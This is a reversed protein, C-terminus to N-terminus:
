SADELAQEARKKAREIKDTTGSERSASWQFRSMENPKSVNRITATTTPIMERREWGEPTEIWRPRRGESGRLDAVLARVAEVAGGSRYEPPLEDRLRELFDAYEKGSDEHIKTTDSDAAQAETIAHIAADVIDEAGKEGLVFDPIAAALRVLAAGREDAARVVRRAADLASEDKRANLNAGIAKRDAILRDCEAIVAEVKYAIYRNLTEPSLESPPPGPPTIDEVVYCVEHFEHVLQAAIQVLTRGPSKNAELADAIERKEAELAAVKAKLDDIEGEIREAEERMMLSGAGGMSRLPIPGTPGPIDIPPGPYPVGAVPRAIWEQPESTSPLAPAPTERNGFEEVVAAVAETHNAPAESPAVKGFLAFLEATAAYESGRAGKKGIQRVLGAEILSKLVSAVSGISVDSRNSLVASSGPGDFLAFCVLAARDASVRPNTNSAIKIITPPIRPVTKMVSEESPPPAPPTIPLPPPAPPPAKATTSRWQMGSGVLESRIQKKDELATVAERIERNTRDVIRGQLKGISWLLGDDFLALLRGPLEPDPRYTPVPVPVVPIPIGAGGVKATRWYRAVREGPTNRKEAKGQEILTELARVVPDTFPLGLSRMLDVSSVGPQTAGPLREMVREVLRAHEHAAAEREARITDLVPPM